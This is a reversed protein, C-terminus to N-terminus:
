TRARAVQRYLTVTDAVMANVCFRQQQTLRARRGLRQRLLPDRLKALQGALGDVQESAFLLGNDGDAIVEPMGGVRAAIVPLGAAMAELLSLSLAESRSPQVLVDVARLVPEVDKRYALLHVRSSLGLADAQQRLATAWTGGDDGVLCIDMGAGASGLKALAQLLLDHGKHEVMRGVMAVVLRDQDLGLEQRAQRRQQQTTEDMPAVGNHVRVVARAPLGHELLGSRVAESVAVVRHNAAFGKWTNLSHVTAVSGCRGWRAAMASYYASRRSHGHVVDIGHHRVLRALRWHSRPDALGLFRVPEWPLQLADAQQALWSDPRLALVIRHGSARLGESLTLVQRELGGFGTTHVVQMLGLKEGDREM